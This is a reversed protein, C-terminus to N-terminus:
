RLVQQMWSQCQFDRSNRYVCGAAAARAFVVKCMCFIVYLTTPFYQGIGINCLNKYNDGNYHGLLSFKLKSFNNVKSDPVRYHLNHVHPSKQRFRFMSKFLTSFKKQRYVVFFRPSHSAILTTGPKYGWRTFSKSILTFNVFFSLLLLLVITSHCARM